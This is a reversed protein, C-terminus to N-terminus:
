RVPLNVSIAGRLEGLKYGEKPKSAIDLEGKPEGHCKLCPQKIYIPQLYRYRQGVREGVGSTPESRKFEELVKQEYADPKNYENRPTFTTQKIEIGTEGKLINGTVRGFVAPIFGKFGKGPQNIRGQNNAVAKRAADLAAVVAAKVDPDAIADIDRGTTRQFEERLKGELFDATFGKDGKAPDNILEQNAAVVARGAVLVEAVLKAAEEAKDPPVAIPAAAANALWAAVAVAVPLKASWKKM